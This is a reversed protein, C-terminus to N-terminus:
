RNGEPSFDNWFKEDYVVDDLHWNANGQNHASIVKLHETLIKLIISENIIRTKGLSYTSKIFYPYYTEGYKRYIVDYYNRGIKREHKVIALSKTSIYLKGGIGRDQESRFNKPDYEIVVVTDGEFATVDNLRFTLREFFKPNFITHSFKSGAGIMDALFVDFSPNSEYSFYTMKRKKDYVPLPNEGTVRRQVIHSFNQAGEKYGERYTQVITEVRYQPKLSDGASLRSYFEMNFPSQRYNDPVARIAQRVLEEASIKKETVTIESLTAVFPDLYIIVNDHNTQLLSDVSIIRSYFGLCSVKITASGTGNITFMFNGQEDSATGTTNSLSINAYSIPANNKKERVSGRILSQPQAEIVLVFM